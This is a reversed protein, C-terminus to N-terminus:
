FVKFSQIKLLVSNCLAYDRLCLMRQLLINRRSAEPSSVSTEAVANLEDSVNPLDLTGNDVADCPSAEDSSDNVM